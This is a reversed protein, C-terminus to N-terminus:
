VSFFHKGLVSCRGVKVNDATWFVVAGHLDSLSFQMLETRSPQREIGRLHTEKASMNLFM